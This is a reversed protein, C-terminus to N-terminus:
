QLHVIFQNELGRPALNVSHHPHNLFNHGLRPRLQPSKTYRYPHLYSFAPSLYFLNYPILLFSPRILYIASMLGPMIADIFTVPSSTNTSEISGIWFKWWRAPTRDPTRAWTRRGTIESFPQM